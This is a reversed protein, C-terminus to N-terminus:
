SLSGKRTTRRASSKNLRRKWGHGPRASEPRRMPKRTLKKEVFHHPKRARGKGVADKLLRVEKESLRRAQGPALNGLKIAGFETRVLKIVKRGFKQFIRRIERKRGERLSLELTRSSITKVKAPLTPGDDLMIGGKEIKEIERHSVAWDLSVLYKKIVGFRPHTLRHCLEGDTTLLILGESNIDLRGVPFVRSASPILHTVMKKHHPDSASSLIGKPKNLAWYEYGKHLWKKAQMDYVGRLTARYLKTADIDLVLVEDTERLADGQKARRNNLLVRGASIWEEIRRRSAIGWQALFKHIRVAQNNTL